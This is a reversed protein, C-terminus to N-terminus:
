NRLSFRARRSNVLYFDVLFDGRYLSAAGTPDTEIGVQFGEVDLHLDADPNIQVTQRDTLLLPVPSTGDKHGVEPITKRLRYLTQRLNVQASELPMDPWLLTMLAERKHPRENEVALYIFLAQVKNTPFRHITEDDLAAIFPGLLSLILVAM